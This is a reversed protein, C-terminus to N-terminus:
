AQVQMAFHDFCHVQGYYGDRVNDCGGESTSM